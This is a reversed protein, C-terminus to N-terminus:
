QRPPRPIAGHRKKIKDAAGKAPRQKGFQARPVASGGPKDLWADLQERVRAMGGTLRLYRNRFTKRLVEDTKAPVDERLGIVRQCQALASAHPVDNVAIATLTLQPYMGQLDSFDQNSAGVVGVIPKFNSNASPPLKPDFLPQVDNEGEDDGDHGHGADSSVPMTASIGTARPMENGPGPPTGPEQATLPYGTGALTKQLAASLSPADKHQSLADVLARALEQCVMAVFPRAIDVFDGQGTAPPLSRAGTAPQAPVDELRPQASLAAEPVAADQTNRAGAAANPVPAQEAASMIRQTPAHQSLAATPGAGQRGTASGNSASHMRNSHTPLPEAASSKTTQQANHTVNDPLRPSSETKKTQAPKTQATAQSAPPVKAPNTTRQQTVSAPLLSRLKNRVGDFSQSISILKRHRDAPLATQQALFVHKAKIDDLRESKLLDAGFTAYLATALKEWEADNWKIIIPLASKKSANAM